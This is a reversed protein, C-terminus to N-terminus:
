STVDHDLPEAWLYPSRYVFPLEDLFLQGQAPFLRGKEPRGVIGQAIWNEMMESNDCTVTGNGDLSVTASVMPTHEPGIKLVQVSQGVWGVQHSTM